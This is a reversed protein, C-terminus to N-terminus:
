ERGRSAVPERGMTLTLAAIAVSAAAIAVGWSAGSLKDDIGLAGDISVDGPGTAAIGIATLWILLNSEYGGHRAWFGHRWQVTVIANVMLAAIALAGFPTLAGLVVLLGGGFSALGAVVTMPFAARYGLGRLYEATGSPGLGGFLGFLKQAGHAMLILGVAARIVLLGFAVDSRTASGPPVSM